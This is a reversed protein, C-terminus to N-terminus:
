FSRFHCVAESQKALKRNEEVKTAAKLADKDRCPGAIMMAEPSVGSM